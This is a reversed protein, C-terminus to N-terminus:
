GARQGVDEWVQPIGAARETLGREGDRDLSSSAPGEVTSATEQTGTLSAARLAADRARAQSCPMPLGTVVRLECERLAM